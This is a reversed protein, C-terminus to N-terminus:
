MLFFGEAPYPAPAEEELLQALNIHITRGISTVPTDTPRNSFPDQLHLAARELMIFPLSIMCTVLVQWAGQVSELAFSLLALFLYIFARLFLRYTTPFVTNRIREAKGMSDTLRTLTADVTVHQYANLERKALHTLDRAHQQLLVLPKNSHTEAEALDAPTLHEVTHERWEDGRLTQGLCYCWAIQRHGMRRVTEMDAAAFTLLQRVLTRSDNVIAGWVKRAEWWRDYSQSLKFSLLLSIATGLLAPISLPLELIVGAPSHELVTITGSLALVWVLGRGSKSVIYRFPIPRELLM